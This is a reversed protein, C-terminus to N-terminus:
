QFAVYWSSKMCNARNTIEEVAQNWVHRFAKANINVEMPTNPFLHLGGNCDMVAIERIVGYPLPASSPSPSASSGTSPSPSATISPNPSFFLSFCMFCLNFIRSFFVALQYKKRYSVRTKCIIVSFSLGEANYQHLFHIFISV